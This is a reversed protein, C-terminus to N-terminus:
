RKKQRSEKRLRKFDDVIEDESVGAAEMAKQLRARAEALAFRQEETPKRRVPLYFGITDGHRTIALPKDSELLYTALNDRFERIGVSQTSM